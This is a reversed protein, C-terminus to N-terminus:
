ASSPRKGARVWNGVGEATAAPPCLDVTFWREQLAGPHLRVCLSDGETVAHYLPYPVDQWNWGTLPGWPSLEVSYSTTRRGSSVTMDMVTARYPEGLGRDFNVDAQTAAGYGLMLGFLGMYIALQIPTHASRLLAIGVLAAACIGAAIWSQRFDILHMGVARFFLAAAPIGAVPNFMPRPTRNRRHRSMTVFLDPAWLTLALPATAVVIAMTTFPASPFMGSAVVALGGVSALSYVSWTLVRSKSPTKEHEVISM